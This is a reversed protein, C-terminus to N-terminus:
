GRAKGRGQRRQRPLRIASRLPPQVFLSLRDIPWIPGTRSTAVRARGRRRGRDRGSRSAVAAASRRRARARRGASRGSPGARARLLVVPDDEDDVIVLRQLLEALARREVPVHEGLRQAREIRHARARDADVDQDILGLGLIVFQDPGEPRACASRGRRRRALEFSALDVIPLLLEQAAEQALDGGPGTRGALMLSSGSRSSPTIRRQGRGLRAQRREEGVRHGRGM